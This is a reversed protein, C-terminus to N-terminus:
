LLFVFHIFREKFFVIKLGLVHISELLHVNVLKM